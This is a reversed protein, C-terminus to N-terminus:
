HVGLNLNIKWLVIPLTSGSYYGVVNQAIETEAEAVSIGEEAVIQAIMKDGDYIVRTVLEGNDWTKCAGLVCNDFGRVRIAMEDNPMRIRGEARDAVTM